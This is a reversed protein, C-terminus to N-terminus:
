ELVTKFKLIMNRYSLNFFLSFIFRIIFIVNTEINANM